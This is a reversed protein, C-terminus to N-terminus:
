GTERGGRADGGKLLPFFPSSYGKKFNEGLGRKPLSLSSPCSFDV